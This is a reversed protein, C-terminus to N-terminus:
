RPRLLPLRGARLGHRRRQPQHAPPPGSRLDDCWERPRGPEPDAGSVTYRALVIAGDGARTYYVYFFGNAAYSPRFALGLLGREGGSVILASVDLFPTGLVSGNKRIKIRGGQEVIFVRDFDGLPATVFLPSTLGSAVRVTKLPTQALSTGALVLFGVLVRASNM